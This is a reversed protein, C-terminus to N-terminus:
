EVEVQIGGVYRASVNYVAAGVGGILAGMIAFLIPLFVISLGGFLLGMYRPMHEANPGAFPVFSFVVSMIAGEFLGMFGYGIAAIKMVSLPDFRKVMKM